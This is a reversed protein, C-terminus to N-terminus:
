KDAEKEATPKCCSYYNGLEDPRDNQCCVVYPNPSGDDYVNPCFYSNGADYPSLNTDIPCIPLVGVPLAAIVLNM